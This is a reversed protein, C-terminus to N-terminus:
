EQCGYRRVLLGMGGPDKLRAVACATMGNNAQANPNAGADLLLELVNSRDNELAWMLPSVGDQQPINPDAKAAILLRLVEEYGNSAAIALATYGVHDQANIESGAKLLLKIAEPKNEEAAIMLLTNKERSDRMLVIKKNSKLVRKLSTIEGTKVSRIAAELIKDESGFTRPVFTLAALILFLKLRNKM